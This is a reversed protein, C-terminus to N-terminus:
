LGFHPLAPLAVVEIPSFSDSQYIRLERAAAMELMAMFTAIIGVRGGDPPFLAEFPLPHNANALRERIAAIREGITYPDRLLERPADARELKPERLLVQALAEFLADPSADTFRFRPPPLPYEDPLRAYVKAAQDGLARLREAAEKYLKYARIQQILALEPDEGGEDPPPAPRPLLARSKIYLLNAAMALFESSADLDLADAQPMLALYQSTIESIRIDQIDMEAREILHLLLDLPGEFQALKIEISAM